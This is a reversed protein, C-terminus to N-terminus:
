VRGGTNISFRGPKPWVGLGRGAAPLGVLHHGKAPLPHLNFSSPPPQAAGKRM